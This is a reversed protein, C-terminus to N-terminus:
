CPKSQKSGTEKPQDQPVTARAPPIELQDELVEIDIVYPKRQVRVRYVFAGGPGLPGRLEVIRGVNGAYHRIKVRDGLNFPAVVKAPKDKSVTETDGAIRARSSLTDFFFLQRASM